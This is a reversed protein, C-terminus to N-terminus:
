PITRSLYFANSSYCHTHLRQEIFLIEFSAITTVFSNHFVILTKAVTLSEPISCGRLSHRNHLWVLRFFVEPKLLSLSSNMYNRGDQADSSSHCTRGREPVTLAGTVKRCPSLSQPEVLGPVLFGLMIVLHFM